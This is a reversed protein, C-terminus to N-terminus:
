PRQKRAELAKIYAIRKQLALPIKAETFREDRGYFYYNAFFEQYKKDTFPYGFYAYIANRLLALAAPGFKKLETEDNANDMAYYLFMNFSLLEKRASNFDPYDTTMREEVAPYKTIMGLALYLNNFASITIEEIPVYGKINWSMARGKRLFLFNQRNWLGGSDNHKLGPFTRLCYFTDDQAALNITFDKIVGGAWNKGTTIIYTMGSYALMPEGSDIFGKHIYSHKVINLGHKLPMKFPIMLRRATTWDNGPNPEELAVINGELSVPKDNVQVTFNEFGGQDITQPASNGDYDNEGVFGVDLEIDNGPNKFEFFVDVKWKGPVTLYTLTLIEKEISIKEEKVPIIMGGESYFRGTDAYSVGSVLLLASM